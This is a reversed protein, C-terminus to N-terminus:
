KLKINKYRILSFVGSILVILLIITTINNNGTKPINKDATTTDVKKTSTIIKNTNTTNPTANNTSTQTQTPPTDEPPQQEQKQEEKPQEKEKITITISKSADFEEEGASLLGNKLEVKGTNGAVVTDKLTLVIQAINTNSKAVSTSAEITLRKSESAYTVTWNEPNLSKVNIDSFIEDSYSLDAEYGIIETDEIGTFTGLGITLTVTKTGEEVTTTGTVKFQIDKDGSAANVYVNLISLLMVIMLMIVLIKKKM